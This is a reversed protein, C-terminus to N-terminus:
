LIVSQGKRIHSINDRRAFGRGGIKVQATKKYIFATFPRFM